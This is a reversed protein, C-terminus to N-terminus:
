TVKLTPNDHGDRRVRAALVEVKERTVSGVVVSLRAQLRGGLQALTQWSKSDAPQDGFHQKACTVSCHRPITAALPHLESFAFADELELLQLKAPWKLPPQPPDTRPIDITMNDLSLHELNPPLRCCLCLLVGPPDTWVMCPANRDDPATCRLNAGCGYAHCACKFSRRM